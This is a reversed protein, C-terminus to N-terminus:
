VKTNGTGPLKFFIQGILFINVLINCILFTLFYLCSEVMQICFEM